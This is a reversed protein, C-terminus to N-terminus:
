FYENFTIFKESVDTNETPEEVKKFEFRGGNETM